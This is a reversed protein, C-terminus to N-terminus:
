EDGVDFEMMEKFMLDVADSEVGLYRAGKKKADELMEYYNIKHQGSIVLGLMANYYVMPFVMCGIKILLKIIRTMRKELAIELEERIQKRIFDTDNKLAETSLQQSILFRYTDSLTESRRKALMEVERCQKDTDWFSVKRRNTKM